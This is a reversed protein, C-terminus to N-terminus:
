LGTAVPGGILVHYVQAKILIAEGNNQLGISKLPADIVFCVFQLVSHEDDGVVVPSAAPVEFSTHALRQRGEKRSDEQQQM